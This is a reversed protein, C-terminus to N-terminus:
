EVTVAYDTLLTQGKGAMVENGIEVSALWEQGTIDGHQKLHDLFARLDLNLPSPVSARPKYALYVWPEPTWTTADLRYLDWMIGGITVTAVVSGAPQMGGYADLWIMLEHTIPLHDSGAPRQNASALWMEIALNGSADADHWKSYSGKLTATSVGDVVRPLAATTTDHWPKQGYIVEPYAHVADPAVPWNWDLLVSAKGGSELVSVCQTYGTNGGPNWINNEAMFSGASVTTDRVCQPTAGALALPSAADAAGGGCAALMTALLAAAIGHRRRM